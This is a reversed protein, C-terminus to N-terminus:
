KADLGNLGQRYLPDMAAIDTRYSVSNAAPFNAPVKQTVKGTAAWEAGRQFTTIFGVCSLANIDHGMTTHFVRGKGYSLAMLIPENRGTGHNVPDSFATALVTMHEGPGRLSNYLEDGQHMWFPPLGRTIPHGTDRIAIQFPVRNGHNGARGPKADSVLRGDKFFWYPGSTEDRDRWGGIGIMKNYEPWNPFANDAAHVSVFGGGDNMYREFAPKLEAPWDPSDYNSVVVQYKGFDPKFASFDEGWKPATVVDVQFLGTEELELKLVPTVQQWKHYTGGSEGDLIMVRIAPAAEAFFGACIIAMIVRIPIFWDKRCPCISGQKRYQRDENDPLEEDRRDQTKLLQRSPLAEAGRRTFGRHEKVIGGIM